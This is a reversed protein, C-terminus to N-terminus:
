WDKLDSKRMEELEEAEAAEALSIQRRILEAKEDAMAKKTAALEKDKARRIHLKGRRAVWRRGTGLPIGVSECAKTVPVGLDVRRFFDKVQEPHGVKRGYPNGRKQATVAGVRARYSVIASDMGEPQPCKEWKTPTTQWYWPDKPFKMQRWYVGWNTTVSYGRAPFKTEKIGVVFLKPIIFGDAEVRLIDEPRVLHRM